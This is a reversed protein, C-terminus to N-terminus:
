AVARNGSSGRTASCVLGTGRGQSRGRMLWMKCPPLSLNSLENSNETTEIGWNRLVRKQDGCLLTFPGPTHGARILFFVERKGDERPLPNRERGFADPLTM